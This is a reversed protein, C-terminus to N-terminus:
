CHLGDVLDASRALKRRGGEATGGGRTAEGQPGPGKKRRHQTSYGQTNCHPSLKGVHIRGSFDNSVAFRPSSVQRPLFAGQSRQPTSPM